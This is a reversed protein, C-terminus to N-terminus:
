RRWSSLSPEFGSRLQQKRQEVDPPLPSSLSVQRATQSGLDVVSLVSGVGHAVFARKGDGEVVVARPERPLDVQFRRQMDAAAYSTLQHGWASAVLLSGHDPTIALAVPEAAAEVACAAALKSGDFSLLRVQAQRPLAVAVQGGAALVLGAPPSGLDFSTLQRRADLDVVLVRNTDEDAVFALTRGQSRGLAVQSSTRSLPTLEGRGNLSCAQPSAAASSARPAAERSGGCGFMALALAATLPGKRVLGAIQM